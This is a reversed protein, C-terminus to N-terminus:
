LSTVNAILTLAVGLRAQDPASGLAIPQRVAYHQKEALVVPVRLVAVNWTPTGLCRV